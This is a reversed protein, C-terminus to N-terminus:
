GPLGREDYGLIEDETRDDVVPRSAYRRAIAMLEALSARGRRREERDLRERLAKGVADTLSEGTLKALRRALRDTESDKINLAM